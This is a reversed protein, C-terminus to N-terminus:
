QSATLEVKDYIESLLLACDISPISISDAFRNAESLLWRQQPQRSYLEVKSRV